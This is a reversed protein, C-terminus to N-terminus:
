PFRDEFPTDISSAEQWSTYVAVAHYMTGAVEEPVGSVRLAELFVRDAVTRHVQGSKILYDHVIAARDGPQGGILAMGLAPVSAFDTQFGEPVWVEAGIRASYFGFPQTLEYVPRGTADDVIKVHCDSLFQANM